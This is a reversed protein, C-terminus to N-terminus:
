LSSIDQSVHIAHLLIGLNSTLQIHLLLRKSLAEFAPVDSLVMNVCRAMRGETRCFDSSFEPLCKLLPSAYEAPCMGGGLRM